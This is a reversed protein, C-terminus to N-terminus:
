RGLQANEKEIASLEAKNTFTNIAKGTDVQFGGGTGTFAGQTKIFELAQFKTKGLGMVADLYAQQGQAGMMSPMMSEISGPIGTADKIPQFMGIAMHYDIWSKTASKVAKEQEGVVNAIGGMAENLLDQASDIDSFVKPVKAFNTTLEEVLINTPDIVEAIGLIAKNMKGGANAFRQVEQELPIDPLFDSVLEALKVSTAEIKVMRLREILYDMGTLFQGTTSLLGSLKGFDTVMKGMPNEANKIADIYDNTATVTKILAPVLHVALERQLEDVKGELERMDDALDEAMQSQEDTWNSMAGAEVLLDRFGQEGDQLAPLLATGFKGGLLDIGVQIKEVETDLGAIGEAVRMFIESPKLNDLDQVGIGIRAFANVYDTIGGRADDVRMILTRMGKEFGQLTTGSLELALRLDDLTEVAIGTRASMKGLMDGVEIFEKVSAIAFGTIATGVALIGVKMQAFTSGVSKGFGQMQQSAQKTNAKLLVSLESINAM